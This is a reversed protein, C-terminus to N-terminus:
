LSVLFSLSDWTSQYQAIQIIQDPTASMSVSQRQEPKVLNNLNNEFKTKKRM